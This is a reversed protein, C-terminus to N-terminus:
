CRGCRLRVIFPGGRPAAREANRRRAPMPERRLSTEPGSHALWGRELASVESRRSRRQPRALAGRGRPAAGGGTAARALLVARERENATLRAARAFEARAEETRGLRELLEARVSPLLHYSALAGSAALEDVIRLGAEPGDAMSVAVARNLEVVPSPALRGLAEYLLAIRRWDTEEVSAAVDHCEAIAAQLAYAGRGRGIADARALAARGRSIPRQDWRRRDQETLMVPDGNRDLRAPFRAATLEMLAVLGHVEPEQPVLEALQRGLRIAEVASSPRMWEDGSTAAHGENFILYVVGLVAGLREGLEARDPVEFPM